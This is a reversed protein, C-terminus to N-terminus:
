SKSQKRLKEIDAKANNIVMQDWELQEQVKKPVVEVVKEIVKPEPNKERKLRENEAVLQRDREM